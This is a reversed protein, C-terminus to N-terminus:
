KADRVEEVIQDSTVADAEAQFNLILRHRLAPVILERIDDYSVNIRGDLLANVKSAMIVAQAGRPGPGFRVYRGVTDTAYNSGPTLAAMMRCLVEYMADAVVVKRVLGKMSEIYAVAKSEEFVTQAEPVNSGTTRNLIEKLEQSTPPEVLLKMLFRDLQAEPM